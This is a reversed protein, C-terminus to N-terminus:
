ETAYLKLNNECVHCCYLTHSQSSIRIKKLTNRKHKDHKTRLAECAIWLRWQKTNPPPPIDASPQIYTLEFETTTEQDERIQLTTLWYTEIVTSWTERVKTLLMPVWLNQQLTFHHLSNTLQIETNQPIKNDINRAARLEHIIEEVYANSLQPKYCHKYDKLVNNHWLQPHDSWWRRMDLWLQAWIGSRTELNLVESLNDRLDTKMCIRLYEKTAKNLERQKTDEFLQKVVEHSYLELNIM